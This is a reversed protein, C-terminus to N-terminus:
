NEMGQLVSVKPLNFDLQVVEDSSNAQTFEFNVSKFPLDWLYFTLNSDYQFEMIYRGFGVTGMAKSNTIAEINKIMDDLYVANFVYMNKMYQSITSNLEKALANYDNKDALSSYLNYQETYDANEIKECYSKALEDYYEDSIYANNSLTNNNNTQANCGTLIIMLLTIVVLVKKM